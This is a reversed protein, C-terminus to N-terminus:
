HPLTARLPASRPLPACSPPPFAWEAGCAESITLDDEEDAEDGEGRAAIVGPRLIPRESPAGGGGLASVRQFPIGQAALDAELRAADGALAYVGRASAAAILGGAERAEELTLAAMEASRRARAELSRGDMAEWVAAGFVGRTTELAELDDRLRGLRAARLEAETLPEAGMDSLIRWSEELAPAAVEANFSSDIWLVGEDDGRDILGGAASYTYGKEERLIRNLRRVFGGGLARAATEAAASAPILREGGIRATFAAQAAGPSDVLWLMRREPPSGAQAEPEAPAAGSWGGFAALIMREAEDLPFDAVLLAEAGDPRFSRLHLALAEERTITQLSELTESRGERRELGYFGAKVAAAALSPGYSAAYGAALRRRALVAEWVSPDFRPAALGAAFGKLAREFEARPASLLAAAHTGSLNASAAGGMYALRRATESDRGIMETMVGMLGERGPPDLAEGGPAILALYAFAAGPRHFHTLKLGNALLVEAPEPFEPPPPPPPPQPIAILTPGREPPPAPPKEGTPGVLAAPLGGRAGPRIVGVAARELRAVARFAADAKPADVLSLRRVAEGRRAAAGLNLRADVAHRARQSLREDSELLEVALRRAAARVEAAPLGEARVEELAERMEAELRAAPVGDAAAAVVAFRGGLRLPTWLASVQSAARRELVLKRRLVGMSDDALALAAARMAEDGQSGVPPGTWEFLITVAPLADEFEMRARSPPFSAPRPPPPPPASWPILGFTQAVLRRGEEPTFDGAIALTANAPRYYRDFFSKADELAAGELDVVAGIVPRRYPHDEPYLAAALAEQAGFGPADVVNQRMENLVVERQLDLDAQDLSPGLNAMRDAELALMMPLAASPGEMQYRVGDESTFANAAVGAAALPADFNPAAPTGMFMLHEFLHSFGSLGPPERASGVDYRLEMAVKPTRDDPLLIVQLGNPLVYEELREAPPDVFPPEAAQPLRTQFLVAAGLLIAAILRLQTM